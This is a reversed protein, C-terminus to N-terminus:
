SNLQKWLAFHRKNHCSRCLFNVKEPKSYDEHHADLKKKKGCGECREPRPLGAAISHAKVVEADTGPPRCRMLSVAKATCSRTCYNGQGKRLNQKIRWAGKEFPDGCMDCDVIVTKRDPRIVPM